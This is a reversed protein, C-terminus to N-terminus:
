EQVALLVLEHLAMLVVGAVAVVLTLLELWLLLHVMQMAVLVVAV